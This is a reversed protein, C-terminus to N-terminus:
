FNDFDEQTAERGDEEAEDFDKSREELMDLIMGISLYDLDKISIGLEM